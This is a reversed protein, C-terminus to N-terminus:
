PAVLCAAYIDLTKRAAEAWNYRKVQEYGAARKQQM